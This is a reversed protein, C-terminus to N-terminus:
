LWARGLNVVFLPKGEIDGGGSIVAKATALVLARVEPYKAYRALQRGIAPARHRKGKAEVVIGDILFDPRDAPGLRHERSVEALGGVMPDERLAKELEDQVLQEAVLNCRTAAIVRVVDAVAVACPTRVEGSM